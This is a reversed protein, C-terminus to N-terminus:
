IGLTMQTGDLARRVTRRAAHIHAQGEATPRELLQAIALLAGRRAADRTPYIRACRWVPGLSGHVSVDFNGQAQWGDPAAHLGIEIYDSGVGTEISEWDCTDRPYCNPNPDTM